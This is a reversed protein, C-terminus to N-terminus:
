EMCPRVCETRSTQKKKRFFFFYIYIYISLYISLYGHRINQNSQITIIFFSLVCNKLNAAWRLITIVNCILILNKKKQKQFSLYFVTQSYYCYQVCCASYNKKPTDLLVYSSNHKYFDFSKLDNM